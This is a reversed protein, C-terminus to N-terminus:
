GREGELRDLDAQRRGIQERIGERQGEPLSAAADWARNLTERAQQYATAPDRNQAYKVYEDAREVLKWVAAADVPEGTMGPLM